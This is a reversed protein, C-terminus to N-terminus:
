PKRIKVRPARRWPNKRFPAWIDQMTTGVTNECNEKEILITEPTNEDGFYRRDEFTFADPSAM